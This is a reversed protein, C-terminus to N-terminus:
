MSALNALYIVMLLDQIQNNFMKELSADFKPTSSIADILFRGIKPDGNIKGEAVKSVYDIIIDLLENLKAVSQTVQQLDSLLPVQGEIGRALSNVLM